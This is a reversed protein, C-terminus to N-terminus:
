RGGAIGNSPDVPLPYGSHYDRINVEHGPRTGLYPRVVVASPVFPSCPAGLSIAVAHEHACHYSRYAPNALHHKSDPCDCAWRNRQRDWEIKYQKSPTSESRVQYYVTGNPLRHETVGSSLRMGRERRRRVIEAPAVSWRSRPKAM